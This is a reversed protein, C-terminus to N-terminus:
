ITQNATSRDNVVESLVRGTSSSPYPLGLLYCITPAIDMISAEFDLKKVQIAKGAIIFPVYKEADSLLYSHDIRVMGHDSCIIIISDSDLDNEKLFAMFNEIRQDARKIAELYQQSESGYAHGLFDVESLDAVFLQTGDEELLDSKLLDFMLDDSKYIGHTPLSVVKTNWHPKSFHKVHMSGYLITKILDPLGEVKIVQGLNNNRIGHVEPIAGTLISAFAPNTLARYVTILGRPFYANNEKLETLFPLQAEEFRDLRCGDINLVIIREAFKEGLEPKYSESIFSKPKLFYTILAASGFAIWFFLNTRSEIPNPVLVLILSYLTSFFISMSLSVTTPAITFISNWLKRASITVDRAVISDPLGMFGIQIFLFLALNTLTLFLFISWDFSSSSFLFFIFVPSLLVFWPFFDSIKYAGWVAVSVIVLSLLSYDEIKFFYVYLVFSTVGAIFFYTDITNFFYLLRTCFDEVKENYFRGVLLNILNM